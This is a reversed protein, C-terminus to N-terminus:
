GGDIDVEWKGLVTGERFDFCSHDGGNMPSTLWDNYDPINNIVKFDYDNASSPKTLKLQVPSTSDYVPTGFVELGCFGIQQDLTIATLKITKGILMPECSFTM